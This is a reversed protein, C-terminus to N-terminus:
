QDTQGQGAQGQRRPVQHAALQELTWAVGADSDRVAKLDLTKTGGGKRTFTFRTGDLRYDSMDSWAFRRRLFRRLKVTLGDDTAKLYHTGVRAEFLGLLLLIVAPLFQLIKFSLHHREQTKGVAEVFLMAAGALELWAVREHGHGRRLKERAAFVILTAGALVELLPLVELHSAHRLHTWGNGILLLAAFVHQVMQANKARAAFRSEVHLIAEPM